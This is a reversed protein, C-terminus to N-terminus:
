NLHLDFLNTDFTLRIRCIFLETQDIERLTKILSPSRTRMVKKISTFSLIDFVFPELVFPWLYIQFNLTVKTIPSVSHGTERTHKSAPMTHVTSQSRYTIAEWDTYTLTLTPFYVVRFPLYDLSKYSICFLFNFTDYITLLPTPESVASIPGINPLFNFTQKVNKKTTKMQFVLKLSSSQANIIENRWKELAFFSQLFCRGHGLKAIKPLKRTSWYLIIYSGLRLCDKFSCM